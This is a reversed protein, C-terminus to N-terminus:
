FAEPCLLSALRNLVKLIFQISRLRRKITKYSFTHNPINKLIYVIIQRTLNFRSWNTVIIENLDSLVLFRYFCINVQQEHISEDEVPEHEVRTHMYTDRTYYVKRLSIIKM